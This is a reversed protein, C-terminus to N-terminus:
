QPKRALMTAFKFRIPNGADDTAHMAGPEESYELMEWDAYYERLENEKFKFPFPM